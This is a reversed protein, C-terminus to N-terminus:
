WSIFIFFSFSVFYVVVPHKQDSSCRLANNVWKQSVRVVFVVLNGKKGGSKKKWNQFTKNQLLHMSFKDRDYINLTKRKNSCRHTWHFFISVVSFSIFDNWYKLYSLYFYHRNSCLWLCLFMTKIAELCNFVLPSCLQTGVYCTSPWVCAYFPCPPM